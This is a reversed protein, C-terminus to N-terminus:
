CGLPSRLAASSEPGKNTRTEGPQASDTDINPTLGATIDGDGRVYCTDVELGPVPTWISAKM